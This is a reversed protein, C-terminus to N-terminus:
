IMTLLAIAIWVSTLIALVAAVLQHTALNESSSFSTANRFETIKRAGFIDEM